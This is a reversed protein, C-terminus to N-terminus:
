QVRPTEIDNVAGSVDWLTAGVIILAAVWVAPRTHSSLLGLGLVSFAVLTLLLRITAHKKTM